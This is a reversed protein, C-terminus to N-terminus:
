ISTKPFFSNGLLSYKQEFINEEIINKSKYHAYFLDFNSRQYWRNEELFEDNNHNEYDMVYLTFCEM